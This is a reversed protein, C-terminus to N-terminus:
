PHTVHTEKGQEAEWKDIQAHMDERTNHPAFLSAGQHSTLDFYDPELMLQQIRRWRTEGPLKVDADSLKTGVPCLLIAGWGALCGATGCRVGEANVVGRDTIECDRVSTYLWQLWRDQEGFGPLHGDPLSDLHALAKRLNIINPM